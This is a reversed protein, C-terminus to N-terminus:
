VYWVVLKDIKPWEHDSNLRMEPWGVSAVTGPRDVGTDDIAVYVACYVSAFCM